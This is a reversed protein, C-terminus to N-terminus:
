GLFNKVLSKESESPDYNEYWKENIEISNDKIWNQLIKVEEPYQDFAIQYEKLALEKNEQSPFVCWLNWINSDLKCQFESMDIAYKKDAEQIAYGINPLNEFVFEWINQIDKSNCKQKIHHLVM